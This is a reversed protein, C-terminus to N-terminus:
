KEVESFTQRRHRVTLLEPPVGARVREYIVALCLGSKESIESITMASGDPMQITKKPTPRRVNARTSGDKGRLPSLIEETTWGDRKRRGLTKASIGIADAIDCIPVARGDVVMMATRSTNRQQQERTAWRVNGPEYNGKPNPYRDLSHSPSPRPGMDALFVSFDDWRSCVTVGKGGYNPYSIHKPNVCRQRMRTWISHETTGAKGHKIM